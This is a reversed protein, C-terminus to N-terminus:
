DIDIDASVDLFSRFASPLAYDTLIKERTTWIFDDTAEMCDIFYATMRWEVHSFIHTYNTQMRLKAPSVGLGSVYNLATQVDMKRDTNPYEWLGALLGKKERKRIAFTHDCRLVFVSMDVIKRKKKEARVPLNKWGDHDKSACIHALPCEMCRPAGNPVCITAGLEMLSQTALKCKGYEYGKALERCVADKTSQKDIIEKYSMVRSFVRLVNGDVAPTELEFCTSGIAGATYAGIGPLSRIAEYTDPFSGGYVEEIEIAAKKLNRARNYYGLGEWLKMLMDDSVRALSAITPLKKLFRVYYEKVAEVRTQQLMIESIWVHYPDNDRRWPLDRAHDPYWAYLAELMQKTKTEFGLSETTKETNNVNNM